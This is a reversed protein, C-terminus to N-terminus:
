TNRDPFFKTFRAVVSNFKLTTKLRSAIKARHESLISGLGAILMIAFLFMVIFWIALAIVIENNLNQYLMTLEM